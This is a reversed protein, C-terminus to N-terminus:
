DVYLYVVYMKHVVDLISRGLKKSGYLKHKSFLWNVFQAYPKSDVMMQMWDTINWVVHKLDLKHKLIDANREIELIFKMRRFLHKTITAGYDKGVEHHLNGYKKCNRILKEFIKVGFM